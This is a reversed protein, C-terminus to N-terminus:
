NASGESQILHQRVLHLVLYILLGILNLFVKEQIPSGFNFAYQMYVPLLSLKKKTMGYNHVQSRPMATEAFEVFKLKMWM